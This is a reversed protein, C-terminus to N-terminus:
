LCLRRGRQRELKDGLQRTPLRKAVDEPSFPAPWFWFRSFDFAHLWRTEWCLQTKTFQASAACAWGFPNQVAFAPNIAGGPLAPAVAFRGDGTRISSRFATYLFGSLWTEEQPELNRNKGDVIENPNKGVEM